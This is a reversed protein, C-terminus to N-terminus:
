CPRPCLCPSRCERAEPACVQPERRPPSSREHILQMEADLSDQLQQAPNEHWHISKDVPRVVAVQAISEVKSKIAVDAERDEEEVRRKVIQEEELQELKALQRIKRELEEDRLQERRLREIEALNDLRRREMSMKHRKKVQSVEEGVALAESKGVTREM